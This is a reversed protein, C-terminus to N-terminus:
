GLMRLIRVQQSQYSMLTQQTSGSMDVACAWLPPKQKNKEEAYSLM